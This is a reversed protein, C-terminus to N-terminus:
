FARGLRELVIEPDGLQELMREADAGLVALVERANAVVQGNALYLPSGNPDLYIGDPPDTASLGEYKQPQQDSRLIAWVHPDLHVIDVQEEEHDSRLAQWGPADPAGKLLWLRAMTDEVYRM